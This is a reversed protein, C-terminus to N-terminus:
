LITQARGPLWLWARLLFFPVDEGTPCGTMAALCKEELEAQREGGALAHAPEDASVRVAVVDDDRDGRRHPPKGWGMTEHESRGGVPLSIRIMTGRSDLWSERNVSVTLSPTGRCTPANEWEIRRRMTSITTKWRTARSSCIEKSATTFPLAGIRRLENDAWSCDGTDATPYESVVLYDATLFVTFGAALARFAPSNM